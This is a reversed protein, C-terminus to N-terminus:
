VQLVYVFLVPEDLSLPLECLELLVLGDSLLVLLDAGHPALDKLGTCGQDGSQSLLEWLCVQVAM